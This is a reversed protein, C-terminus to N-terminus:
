TISLWQSSFDGTEYLYPFKLQVILIVAM